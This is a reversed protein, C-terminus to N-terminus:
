GNDKIVSLLHKLIYPNLMTSLDIDKSLKKTILIDRLLRRLIKGSRTKPLEKIFYINKPLAYNGFNKSILKNIENTEINKQCVVFVNFIMGEYYDPTSVACCEIIKDHSLIISEIEESGIRHGRINIVDDVRGHIYINKNKITGLDFMRFFGRKTWYIDWVEKKNLISSMCGPWPTKIM